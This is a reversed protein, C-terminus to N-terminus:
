GTTQETRHVPGMKVDLQDSVPEDRQSSRRRRSRSKLHRFSPDTWRKIFYINVSADALNADLELM